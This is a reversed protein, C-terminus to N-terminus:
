SCAKLSSCGQPRRWSQVRNRASCHIGQEGFGMAVTEVHDEDRRAIGEIYSRRRPGHGVEAERAEGDDGRILRVPALRLGGDAGFVKELVCFARLAQRVRYGIAGQDNACSRELMALGLLRDNRQRLQRRENLILQGSVAADGEDEARLLAAERAFVERM